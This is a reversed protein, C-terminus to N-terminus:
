KQQKNSLTRQNGRRKRERLGHAVGERTRLHNLDGERETFTALASFFMKERTDIPEDLRTGLPLQVSRAQLADAIQRAAPVSRALHDPKPVM